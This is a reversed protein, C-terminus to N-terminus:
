DRVTHRKAMGTITDFSTRTTVYLCATAHSFEYDHYLTHHVDSIQEIRRFSPVPVSSRDLSSEPTAHCRSSTIRWSRSANM